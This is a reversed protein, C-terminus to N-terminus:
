SAVTAIGSDIVAATITTTPGGSTVCAWAAEASMRTLAWQESLARRETTGGPGDSM